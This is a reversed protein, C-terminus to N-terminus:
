DASANRWWSVSDRRVLVVDPRGDANIDAAFARVSPGDAIKIRQGTIGPLISVGGADAVLLDPKGDGDFDALELSHIRDWDGPIAHQPWQPTPDSAPRQFWALRAPSMERQGAVLTGDRYALRLMASNEFENWTNIAFLRWHLDFRAPSRIWDNGCLIDPLGDGDIDAPALGGERSPTYFSYVEQVPWQASPNAPTEYFRVQMQRHVVLVGRHGLLTVALIDRTDVGSAIIHRKWGPAQLWVLQPTAGTENLILDPRGDGDVDAVTGGESYAHGGAAILETKGHPLKKWIARDGWAVVSNGYAVAGTFRADAFRELSEETFRVGAAAVPLTVAFLLGLASHMRPLSIMVTM